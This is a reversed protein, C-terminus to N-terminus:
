PPCISSEQMYTPLAIWASSPIGETGLQIEAPWQRASTKSARM